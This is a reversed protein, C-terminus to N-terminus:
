FRLTASAFVGRGDGPRVSPTAGTATPVATLQSVYVKDGLNRGELSLRWKGGPAEYGARLGWISYAPIVFAEGGSGDFTTRRSSMYRSTLGVYAGGAHRYRLESVLTHSPIVPMKNNGYLGDGDFHMDAYNWTAALQVSDGKSWVGKAFNWRTGAEIGSHVTRDANFAITTGCATTTCRTLIENRLHMRYVTVDASLDENGGRVGAEVTWAKQPDVQNGLKLADAVDSDTPVEYSRALSAFGFWGPRYEWNVGIKPNFTSFDLAYSRNYAATGPQPREPCAATLPGGPACSAVATLPRSNLTRKGHTYQFGAFTKLDPQLQLAMEGYAETWDASLAADFTKPGRNQGGNRHQYNAFDGATKNYRLGAVLEADMGGLRTLGSYRTGIGHERWDRNVIGAFPSPLHDFGIDILYGDFEIRDNENLRWVTRNALRTYDFNMDQDFERAYTGANRRQTSLTNLALPSPLHDRTRGSNVYFRTTVAPSIRYGLNASIRSAHSDAHAQYGDSDHQSASVYIDASEFAHGAQYHTQRYGYSGSDMRVSQGDFNLGTRSVFNLAGGTAIAGYRLSNAGRYVEVYHTTPLDILSTTIGAETRGLPIGDQYARIGRGNRPGDTAIDSGRMSIVGGGSDGRAFSHVGPTQELAEDLGGVRRGEWSAADVVTEAGPRRLFRRAQEAADPVDSDIPDAIVRIEQLSNVSRQGAPIEPTAPTSQAHAQFAALMAITVSSPIHKM